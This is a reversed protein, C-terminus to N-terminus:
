HRAQADILRLVHIGDAEYNDGALYVYDRRAAVDDVQYFGKVYGLHAPKFRDSVDFVQLSFYGAVYAIDSEVAIKTANSPTVHAGVLKPQGPDSVDVIKLGEFAEVVYAYHGVVKVDEPYDSMPLFGIATPQAPNKVDVIWLGGKITFPELDLHRATCRARGVLAYLLGNEFDAGSPFGRNCRYSVKEKSMPIADPYAEKEAAIQSPTLNWWEGWVSWPPGRLLSESRNQPVTDVRYQLPSYVGVLSIHNPNTADWIQIGGHIELFLYGDEAMLVDGKESLRSVELPRSPERIDVMVLGSSDSIYAYGDMTAIHIPNIGPSTFVSVIRPTEPNSVDAFFVDNGWAGIAILRDNVVAVSESRIMSGHEYERAGLPDFPESLAAVFEVNSRAVLADPVRCGGLTLSLLVIATHAGLTLFRCGKRNHLGIVM